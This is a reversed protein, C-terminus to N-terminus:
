GLLAFTEGRAIAFSIGDVIAVGGPLGTILNSVNLLVESKEIEQNLEASMKLQGVPQSRMLLIRTYIM